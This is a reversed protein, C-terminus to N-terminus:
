NIDKMMWKWCPIVDIIGYQDTLTGEEDYTVFIRRRCPHFYVRNNDQKRWLLNILNLSLFRQLNIFKSKIFCFFIM